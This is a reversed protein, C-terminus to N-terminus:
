SCREAASSGAFLKLFRDVPVGFLVNRVIQGVDAEIILHRPRGGIRRLNQDCRAFAFADVIDALSDLEGAFLRDHDIDVGECELVAVFDIVLRVFRLDDRKQIDTGRRHVHIDDLAGTRQEGAVDRDAAALEGVNQLAAQSKAELLGFGDFAADVM